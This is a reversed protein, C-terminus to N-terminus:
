DILLDGVEDEDDDDDDGGLFIFHKVQFLPPSHGDGSILQNSGALRLCSEFNLLDM